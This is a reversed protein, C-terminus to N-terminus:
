GTASLVAQRSEAAIAASRNCGFIPCGHSIAVSEVWVPGRNNRDAAITCNCHATVSL